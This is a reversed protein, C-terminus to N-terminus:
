VPSFGKLQGSHALINEEELSRYLCTFFTWLDSFYSSPGEECRAINEVDSTFVNLPGCYIGTFIEYTGPNGQGYFNSKGLNIGKM